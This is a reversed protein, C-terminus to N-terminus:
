NVQTKINEVVYKPASLDDGAYNECKENLCLMPMNIFALTQEDPSEDGEFTYYTTGTRLMAQCKPCSDM